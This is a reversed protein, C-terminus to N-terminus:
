HVDKKRRSEPDTTAPAPDAPTLGGGGEAGDGGETQTTADEKGDDNGWLADIAPTEAWTATLSPPGAPGAAVPVASAGTVSPAAPAPVSPTVPGPSKSPSSPSSPAPIAPMAPDGHRRCYEYFSSRSMTTRGTEVLERYVLMLPVGTALRRRVEPWLTVFEVRAAGWRTM